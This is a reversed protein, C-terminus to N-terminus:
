KNKRLIFMLALVNVFISLLIVGIVVSEFMDKHEFDPFMANMIHLMVISLGGKIGAFTLVGFWQFTMDKIFGTKYAIYTFLAILSARISMTTAFTMVIEVWYKQLMMFDIIHALSVFLMANVLLSLVELFSSIDHQRKIDTINYVLSNVIKYVTRKKYSGNNTGIENLVEKAKGSHKKEMTYSKDIITTMTLIAVIEALLGSLVNDGIIVIHEAILFSSYAVILILIFEGMLDKTHKLVAMGLLGVIIGVIISGLVIQIPAMVVYSITIEHSNMMYLGFASFMTLAAPDNFLSEGEALVELQKPVKNMKFVSIVSVPDTATVMAFLAIAAGTSIDIGPFIYEKLAVGMMIALVVFVTSLIFISLANEKLKKLKLIFADSLVLLVIFVLMEEAFFETTTFHLFDTYILGVVLSFFMLPLPIPIRFVKQIKLGVLLIGLILVINLLM